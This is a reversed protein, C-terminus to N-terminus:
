MIQAAFGRQDIEAFSILNAILTRPEMHYTRDINIYGWLENMAFMGPPVYFAAPRIEMGRLTYAPLVGVVLGGTPLEVELDIPIRTDRGNLLSMLRKNASRIEYIGKPKAQQETM